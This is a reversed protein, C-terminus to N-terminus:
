GNKAVKSIKFEGFLVIVLAAIGAFYFVNSISSDLQPVFIEQLIKLTIIGFIIYIGYRVELNGDVRKKYFKFPNLRKDIWAFMKDQFFGIVIIVFLSAFVADIQGRKGKQYILAGIGGKQNLLEAIIIYTWSIATLVRIDDWVKSFVSPLYVSKITQWTSAGLTFVTSKYVEEVEDIRQVIVPLLYVLIGFALFSIKMQDEIGFWIIFIGTLASLPLYRLVDIPRRFMSRFLPFLGLIFALPISIIIAWFYGKINLWLSRLAQKILDDEKTIRSLASIVKPPPPLLPYIKEFKTASAFKISDAKALSDVNISSGNITSPLETSYGEIIPKQVSFYEALGWWILLLVIGGIVGFILSERNNPKAGLKFLDM